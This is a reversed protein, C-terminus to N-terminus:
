GVFFKLYVRVQSCRPTLFILYVADFPVASFSDITYKLERFFSLALERFQRGSLFCCVYVVPLKFAGHNELFHIESIEFSSSALNKQFGLFIMKCNKFSRTQLFIKQFILTPGEKVQFDPNKRKIRLLM